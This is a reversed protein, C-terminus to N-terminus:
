LNILFFGLNIDMQKVVLKDPPCLNVDVHEVLLETSPCLNIDM